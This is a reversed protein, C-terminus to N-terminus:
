TMPVMKVLASQHITTDLMLYGVRSLTDRWAWEVETFSSLLLSRCFQVQVVLIQALRALAQKECEPLCQCARADCSDPQCSACAGCPCLNQGPWPCSFHVIQLTVLTHSTADTARTTHMCKAYCTHSVARVVCTHQGVIFTYTPPATPCVHGAHM